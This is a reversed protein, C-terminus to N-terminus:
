GLATGQGDSAILDDIGRIVPAAALADAILGLSRTSIPKGGLAASITAESLRAARALDTAAWGRRNMEHRLRAVHITVSMAHSGGGGRPPLPHRGHRTKGLIDVARHHQGAMVSEHSPALPCTRRRLLGGSGSATENPYGIRSRLSGAAASPASPQQSALSAPQSQMPRHDLHEAGAAARPHVAVLDSVLDCPPVQKPAWAIPGMRRAVLEPQPSQLIRLEELAAVGSARPNPKARLALGAISGILALRPVWGPLSVLQDQGEVQVHAEALKSPAVRSHDLKTAQEVPKRKVRKTRVRGPKAVRVSHRELKRVEGGEVRAVLPNAHRSASPPIALQPVRESPIGALDSPERCRDPHLRFQLSLHRQRWFVALLLRSLTAQEIPPVDDPLAVAPEDGLFLSSHKLLRAAQRALDAPEVVLSRVSLPSPPVDLAVVHRWQCGGLPLHPRSDGIQRHDAGVAMPDEM